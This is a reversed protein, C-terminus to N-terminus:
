EIVEVKALGASILSQLRPDDKVQHPYLTEAYTEMDFQLWYLENSIVFDRWTHRVFERLKAIAKARPETCHDCIQGHVIGGVCHQVSYDGRGYHSQTIWEGEGLASLNLTYKTKKM